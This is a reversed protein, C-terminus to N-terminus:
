SGRESEWHEKVKRQVTECQEQNFHLMHAECQRVEMAAALWAYAESRTMHGFKWLLDFDRHALQRARKEPDDSLRSV